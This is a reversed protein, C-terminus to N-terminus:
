QFTEIENTLIELDGFAMIECFVKEPTHQAYLGAACLNQVAEEPTM